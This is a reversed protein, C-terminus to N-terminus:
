KVRLIKALSQRLHAAFLGVPERVCREDGM